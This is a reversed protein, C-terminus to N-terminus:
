AEIWEDAPLAHVEEDTLDVNILFQDYNSNGIEAPFGVAGNDNKVTISTHAIGYQENETKMYENM